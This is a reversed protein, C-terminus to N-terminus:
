KRKLRQWAVLANGSPYDKSKGCKVTNFIVKDGKKKTDMSIILDRYSAFKNREGIRLKEKKTDGELLDSHKAIPVSGLVLEMYGECEV